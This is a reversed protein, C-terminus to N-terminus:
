EYSLAISVNPVTDRPLLLTSSWLEEMGTSVLGKHLCKQFDLAQALPIGERKKWTELRYILISVFVVILYFSLVAKHSLSLAAHGVHQKKKKKM